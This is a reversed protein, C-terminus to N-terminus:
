ALANLIDVPRNCLDIQQSHVIVVEFALLEQLWYVELCCRSAPDQRQKGEFSSVASVPAHMLIGQSPSSPSTMVARVFNAPCSM